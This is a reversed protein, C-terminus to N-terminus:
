SEYNPNMNLIGLVRCPHRFTFFMPPALLLLHPYDGRGPQLLTLQDVLYQLTLPGGPGGPEPMVARHLDLTQIPMFTKCALEIM